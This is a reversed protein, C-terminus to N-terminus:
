ICCEKCRFLLRVEGKPGQLLLVTKGSKYVLIKGLKGPTADAMTNDFRGQQIPSTSVDAVRMESSEAGETNDKAMTGGDVHDRDNKDKNTLSKQVLAPLRTPFQFLFFSEMEWQLAEVDQTDVFPSPQTEKTQLTGHSATIPVTGQENEFQRKRDKKSLQETYMIPRDKEKASVGVPLPAIPFPLRCPPINPNPPQPKAEELSSDSDYTYGEESIQKTNSASQDEVMSPERETDEYKELKSSRKQPAGDEAFRSGIAKDLEGVVEETAENDKKQRLVKSKSDKGGGSPGSSSSARSGSTKSAAAGKRGQAPAATFFVQGQPLPSRKRGGGAGGGRGRGRGQIPGSGHGRGASGGDGRQGGGSGSRDEQGTSSPTSDPVVAAAAAAGVRIKKAPKRPKFKGAQSPAPM